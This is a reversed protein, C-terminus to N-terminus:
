PTRQEDANRVTMSVLYNNDIDGGPEDLVILDRFTYNFSSTLKDTFLYVKLNQLM